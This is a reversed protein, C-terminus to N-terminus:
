ARSRGMARRVLPLILRRPAARMGYATLKNFAGPIVMRRGSKFGEWGEAAVAQANPTAMASMARADKLGARAQFGTQVPGPCLSMVTVGTGRVEEALADTFSIVFAKTAFYIAMNPGPLFGAVSAVNLVGGRGQAIMGPLFRLTLDALARINLDIMNLQDARPLAAAKGTRGFGANNIVIDPELGRQDLDRALGEVADHRSLDCPLVAVPVAHRTTIVGKVRHLEHENRAVLVLAHGEAALIQAFAEGIGGSAGTVLVLQPQPAASM